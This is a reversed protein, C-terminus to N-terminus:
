DKRESQESRMRKLQDNLRVTAQELEYRERELAEAFELKSREENKWRDLLRPEVFANFGKAALVVGLISGITMAVKFGAVILLVFTVSGGVITFHVIELKESAAAEAKERLRKAKKADLYAIEKEIM